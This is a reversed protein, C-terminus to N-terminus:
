AVKGAVAHYPDQSIHLHQDYIYPDLPGLETSQHIRANRSNLEQM